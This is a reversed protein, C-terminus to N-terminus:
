STSGLPPPAWCSDRDLELAARSGRDGIAVVSRTRECLIPTMDIRAKFTGARTATRSSARVPRPSMLTIRVREGARFGSGRVVLPTSRVLTLVPHRKPAAAVPGGTTGLVLVLLAIAARV